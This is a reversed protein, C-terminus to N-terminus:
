AHASAAAVGPGFYVSAVSVAVGAIPQLHHGERINNFVRVIPDAKQLFDLLESFM